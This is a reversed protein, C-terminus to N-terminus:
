GNNETDKRVVLLLDSKVMQELLDERVKLEGETIFRALAPDEEIPFVENIERIQQERLAPTFVIKNRKAMQHGVEQGIFNANRRTQKVERRGLFAFRGRLM